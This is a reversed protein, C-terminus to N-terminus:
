FITWSKCVTIHMCDVNMHSISLYIIIVLPVSERYEIHDSM